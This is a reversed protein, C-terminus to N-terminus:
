LGDTAYRFIADESGDFGRPDAGVRRNSSGGAGNLSPPGRRMRPQAPTEPLGRRRGAGGNLQATIQDFLEPRDNLVQAIREAEDADRQARFEQLAPEAWRMLWAGPDPSNIMRRALAASNADVPQATFARYAHEFESGYAEHAEAFAANIRNEHVERVAANAAESRVQREWGEPDSFMDPRQPPPQQQPQPQGMGEVRGELRALRERLQRNEDRAQRLPVRLDGRDVPEEGDEVEDEATAEAPDVEDDEEEQLEDGGAADEVSTDGDDEPMEADLAETFIEKETFGMADAMQRQEEREAAEDFGEPTQQAARLGAEPGLLGENAM